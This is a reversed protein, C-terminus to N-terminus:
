FEREPRGAKVWADYSQQTWKEVNILSLRRMWASFRNTQTLISLVPIPQNVADIKEVTQNNSMANM